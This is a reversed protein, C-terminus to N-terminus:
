MGEEKAISKQGRQHNLGRLQGPSYLVPVDDPVGDDVLQYRPRTDREREEREVVRERQERGVLREREREREEEEEGGLLPADGSGVRRGGENGGMWGGVGAAAAATAAAINTAIGRMSERLPSRPPIEIEEEGDRNGGAFNSSNNMRLQQPSWGGDRLGEQGRRSDQTRSPNSRLPNAATNPINSYQTADRENSNLLGLGLRAGIADNYGRSFDDIESHSVLPSHEQGDGLDRERLRPAFNNAERMEVEEPTHEPIPHLPPSALPMHDGYGAGDYTYPQDFAGAINVPGERM